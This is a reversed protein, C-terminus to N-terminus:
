EAVPAPVASVRMPRQPMLLTFLLALLTVVLALEYVRRIAATFSAKLALSVADIAADIRPLAEDIGREVGAVAESLAREEAQAQAADLGQKVGALVGARSAADALSSPPIDVLEALVAAPLEKGELLAKWQGPSQAAQEVRAWAAEFQAAVQKKVGGAAATAKLREDALESQAVLVAALADGALAKRAVTKAGELQERVQRKVKQADFQQQAGGGEGDGAAGRASFRQVMSPPLGATAAGMSAALQASLATAFFSGVIALGVSSGMQRLFTVMSTTAGIQRPEVSNQIALTYLPISPGLGLGVVIMRLTVEGQTSAPQLTFALIAFGALLIILSTVMLLKARGFRSVLQGSLVNGAVVGLVLPSITLGSATATVGVVNVMFLPLFVMPTLFAGGMVFVAASGWRVGPEKFLRLDVLPDRARLEWWIFAAVGAVGAGLLSLEQWSTWTFGVEGARVEPRGLSLGVLLPVTGGILLAVGPLDVKAARREVPKLPPMRLAIFTLALAGLPLNIFFVWHWGFHDTIFGGLLPGILSSVGFVSGFLGSMKGRQAPTFLDAVVAFASTFVSASGAGQLARFFLLQGTTQSLGCLASAVLFIVVGIVLILKRGYLDSLKGYVPVLVTSAVVYATTIWTYLSADIHLARQIDPGATAVVTQDLAALFMSLLVGVITLVKQQTTLTM